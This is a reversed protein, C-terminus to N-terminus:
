GPHVMTRHAVAAAHLIIVVTTHHHVANTNVVIVYEDLKHKQNHNVVGISSEKIEFVIEICVVEM